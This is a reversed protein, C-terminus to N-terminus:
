ESVKGVINNRPLVGWSRSDSSGARNDGMVFYESDKLVVDQFKGTVLTVQTEYPESLIYGNPNEANTIYVKGDRLTIKDGPVGILRTLFFRSTDLPYRVIVVDGRMPLHSKYFIKNIIIRSDNHFNPAMAEGSVVFPEAVYARFVTFGFFVTGFLLYSVLIWKIYISVSKNKNLPISKQIFFNFLFFTIVVAIVNSITVSIGLVSGIITIAMIALISVAFVVFSKKWSLINGDKKIIWSLLKPLVYVLGLYYVIVLTALTFFIPKM